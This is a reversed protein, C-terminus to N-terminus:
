FENCIAPTTAGGAFGRMMEDVGHQWASVSSAVGLHFAGELTDKVPEKQLFKATSSFASARGTAAKRTIDSTVKRVAETAKGSVLM